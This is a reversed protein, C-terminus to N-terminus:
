VMRWARTTASPLVAPQKTLHLRVRLSHSRRVTTRSSRATPRPQRAPAAHRPMARCRRPMLIGIGIASASAPASAIGPSNAYGPVTPCHSLLGFRCLLKGSVMGGADPSAESRLRMNLRVGLRLRVRVRLRLRLRRGEAGETSKATFLACCGLPWRGQVHPSFSKPLQCFLCLRSYNPASKSAQGVQPSGAAQVTLIPERHKRATWSTAM